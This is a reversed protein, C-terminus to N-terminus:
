ANCTVSRGARVPCVLDIFSPGVNKKTATFEVNASGSSYFLSSLLSLAEVPRASHHAIVTAGAGCSSTVLPGSSGEKRGWAMWRCDTCNIGDCEKRKKRRVDSNLWDMVDIAITRSLM